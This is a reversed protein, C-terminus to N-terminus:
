EARLDCIGARGAQRFKKYGRFIFYAKGKCIKILPFYIYHGNLNYRFRYGNSNIDKSPMKLLNELNNIAVLQCDEMYNTNLMPNSVSDITRSKNLLVLNTDLCFFSKSYYSIYLLGTTDKMLTCCGM